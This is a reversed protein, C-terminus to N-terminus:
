PATAPPKAAGESRDPAVAPKGERTFGSWRSGASCGVGYSSM